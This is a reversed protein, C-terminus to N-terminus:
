RAVALPLEDWRTTYAPTRREAKMRWPQELGEAAFRVTGTGMRANLGDVAALLREDMERHREDLLTLQGTGAPELGYLIVGAKKYRYSDRYLGTVARRAIGLLEPTSSSAVMLSLDATDWRRESPTGSGSQLFVTLAAAQLRRARLKELARALYASVAELLEGRDTVPVGFSRSCCISKPTPPCGELPLCPIGRLELVLRQGTVGLRRRIWDDDAARLKLATDIGWAGLKTATQRGVGWVEGVPVAALLAERDGAAGLNFVGGAGPLRKALSGAIKALVKTEAIGVAVPIGTWRQVTAIIERAVAPRRCADLRGLGLFAEDISYIEIEPTFRALVNMVRRSMDGYLAYNSSLVV